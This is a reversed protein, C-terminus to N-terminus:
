LPLGQLLGAIFQLILAADVSNVVGDGNVDGNPASAIFGATYQLVLAADVSTTSGDDNVDGDGGPESTPTPTDTPAPPGPSTATPTASPQPPAPSTATAPPLPTSTAAGETTVGYVVPQGGPLEGETGISYTGSIATGDATVSGVFSSDVLQLEGVPAAGFLLLSWTGDENKASNGGVGVFPAPGFLQAVYPPIGEISITITEPMGIFAADDGLDEVVTMRVDFSGDPPVGVGVALLNTLLVASLAVGTM